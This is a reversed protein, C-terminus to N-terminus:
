AASTTPAAPTTSHVFTIASAMLEENETPLATYKAFKVLDALQLLNRLRERAEAPMPGMRLAAMLEDTTYELAPTAFREEVYGRLVDTVETHYQKVAGNQWLKRHEIAQLAELTRVHLPQQPAEQAVVTRPRRARRVLLIILATLVAVGGAIGAIWPWNERLWDKWSFPLEYIDKIDKIAATTDVPVTNVTLLLPETRTTDGDIVLKFPPIAWYGSDWSTITLIRKQELLYPDGQKNPMVTDVGTDHLIDVHGTLTDTFTPWIVQPAPAKDVHYTVSLTIEAQEGILLTNRDLSATPIRDQAHLSLSLLLPLLLFKRM